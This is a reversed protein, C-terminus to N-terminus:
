IKKIFNMWIVNYKFVNNNKKKKLKKEVEFVVVGNRM